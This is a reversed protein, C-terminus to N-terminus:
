CRHGAECASLRVGRRPPLVLCPGLGWGAAGTLRVLAGRRLRNRGGNSRDRAGRRRQLRPREAGAAHHRQTEAGNADGKEAQWRLGNWWGIAVAGRGLASLACILLPLARAPAEQPADQRYAEPITPAM